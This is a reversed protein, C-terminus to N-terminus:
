QIQLGTLSVLDEEELDRVQIEAVKVNYSAAWLKIQGKKWKEIERSSAEIGNENELTQWMIRDDFVSLNTFDGSEQVLASLLEKISKYRKGELWDLDGSNGGGVAGESYVDEESDFWAATILYETSSIGSKKRM